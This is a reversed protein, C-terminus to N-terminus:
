RSAMQLVYPGLRLNTLMNVQLSCFRGRPKASFLSNWSYRFVLVSALFCSFWTQSPIHLLLLKGWPMGAIQGPSCQEGAPGVGSSTGGARSMEREAVLSEGCPPSQDVAVVVFFMRQSVCGARNHQTGM